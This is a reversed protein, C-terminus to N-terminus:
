KLSNNKFYSVYLVFSSNSFVSSSNISSNFSNINSLKEVIIKSFKSIDIIYGTSLSAPEYAHGGCRIAFELSNISLNKILYSVQLETEPYFIAHPFYNFLKNYIFRVDNYVIDTPYIAYSLNKLATPIENLLLQYNQIIYSM